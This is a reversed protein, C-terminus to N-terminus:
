EGKFECNTLNKPNTDYQRLPKKREQRMKNRKITKYSRTEYSFQSKTGLFRIKDSLRSISYVQM